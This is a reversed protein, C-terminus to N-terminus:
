VAKEYCKRVFVYFQEFYKCFSNSSCAIHVQVSKMCTHKVCTFVSLFLFRKHVLLLNSSSKIRRFFDQQLQGFMNSISFKLFSFWLVKPSKKLADKLIFYRSFIQWTKKSIQRIHTKNRYPQDLLHISGYHTQFQYKSSHMAIKAARKHSTDPTTQIPKQVILSCFLYCDRQM